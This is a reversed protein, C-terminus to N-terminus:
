IQLARWYVFLFTAPKHATGTDPLGCVGSASVYIGDNSGFGSLTRKCAAVLIMSYM